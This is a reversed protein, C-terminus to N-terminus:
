ALAASMSALQAPDMTQRAARQVLLQRWEPWEPDPVDKYVEMWALQEALELCADARRNSARWRGLVELRPDVEMGRDQAEDM